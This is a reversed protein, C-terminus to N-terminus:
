LKQRALQLKSKEVVEDNSKVEQLVTSAVDAAARNSIGYWSDRVM